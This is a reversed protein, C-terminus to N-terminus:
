ANKIYAIVSVQTYFNVNAIWEIIGSSDTKVIVYGLENSSPVTGVGAGAELTDGNTRFYVYPAGAQGNSCYCRLMVLATNAGVVASLDLDEWANSKNGSGYVSTNCFTITTPTAWSPNQGHGNTKLLQGATGHALAAIAPTNNGYLVDGQETVLNTWAPLTAGMKLFYAETGKPLRKWYTGDFYLLDGAAQGDAQHTDIGLWEAKSLDDGVDKHGFENAM